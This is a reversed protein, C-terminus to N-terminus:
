KINICCVNINLTDFGACGLPVIYECLYDNITLPVTFLGARHRYTTNSLSIIKKEGWTHVTEMRCGPLTNSIFLHPLGPISFAKCRISTKKNSTSTYKRAYIFLQTVICIAGGSCRWLGTKHPLVDVRVIYKTGADVYIVGNSHHTQSHLDAHSMWGASLGSGAHKTEPHLRSEKQKVQSFPHLSLPFSAEKLQRVSHTQGGGAFVKGCYPLNFHMLFLM